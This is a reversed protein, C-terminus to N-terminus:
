DKKKTFNSSEGDQSQDEMNVNETPHKAEENHSITAAKYNKGKAKKNPTTPPPPLLPEGPLM